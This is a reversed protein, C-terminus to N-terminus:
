SSTCGGCGRGTRPRRAPRRRCAACRRQVDEGPDGRRQQREDGLLDVPAEGALALTCRASQGAAASAARGVGIEDRRHVLHAVDHEAASDTRLACRGAPAGAARRRQRDGRGVGGRSSGNRSRTRSSTFTFSTWGRRVVQRVLPTSSSCTTGAASPGRSPGSVWRTMRATFAPSQVSSSPRTTAPPMSSSSPSYVSRRARRRGPGSPPAARAVRGRGARCRRDRGLQLPLTEGAVEHADDLLGPAVGLEVDGVADAERDLPRGLDLRDDGLM